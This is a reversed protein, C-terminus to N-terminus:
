LSPPKNALNAHVAQLAVMVLMVEMLLMVTFVETYMANLIIVLDLVEVVVDISVRVWDGGSDISGVGDSGFGEVYNKLCSVDSRSVSCARIM